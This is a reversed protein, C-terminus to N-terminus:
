INKVKANMYTTPSVGRQNKFFHSFHSEDNFGFEDAIEKISFRRSKLRKEILVLRYQNIYERFSIDFRRKFYSSFYTPSINFYKSIYDVKIKEPEYIHQHIYATIKEKGYINDESNQFMKDMTENIIGFVSLIQCFIIPSSIINKNNKRYLLISDINKRLITKIHADFELKTEKLSKNNLISEPTIDMNGQFTKYLKNQFYAETFKIVIIRTSTKPIFSHTDEQSIIFLDNSQYSTNTKNLLHTGSGTYVFALEYYNQNHTQLAFDNENLEEIKLADFQKFKLMKM